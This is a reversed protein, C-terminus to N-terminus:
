QEKGSQRDRRGHLRYHENQKERCSKRHRHYSAKSHDRRCKMCHRHGSPDIYLNDGAYPHGKPCKSKSRNLTSPKDPHDNQTTGELHDPNTCARRKCKSHHLEPFLKRKAIYEWAWRHALFTKREHNLTGYGGDNLCGTWIWCGSPLIRIRSMFREKTM